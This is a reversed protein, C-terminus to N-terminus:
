SFLFFFVPSGIMWFAIWSNFDVVIFFVPFLDWIWLSSVALVRQHPSRRLAEDPRQRNLAPPPPLSRGRRSPPNFQAFLPLAAAGDAARRRRLHEPSLTRPIWHRWRSPPPPPPRPLLRGSGERAGHLVAPSLSLRVSLPSLPTSARGLTRDKFSCNPNRGLIFLGIPTSKDKVM